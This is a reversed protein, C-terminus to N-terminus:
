YIASKLHLEKSFTIIKYHQTLHLTVSTSLTQETLPGQAGFNCPVLRLCHLCLATDVLPSIGLFVLDQNDLDNLELEQCRFNYDMWNQLHSLTVIGCCTLVSYIIFPDSWKIFCIMHHLHDPDSHLKYFTQFNCIEWTQLIGTAWGASTHSTLHHVTLPQAPSAVSGPDTHNGDNQGRSSDPSLQLRWCQSALM